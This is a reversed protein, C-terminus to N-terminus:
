ARALTPTRIRALAVVMWLAAAYVFYWLTEQGANVGPSFIVLAGTSSAHMLQTLLVSQTNSYVWAILVRVATMAATFAVFYPVFYAGHPTAVGLYDIVPLHWLGWLLGLLISARFASRTRAMKPFAYGMWGIEEFFGAPCGFLVGILFLKPAFAPSVAKAMGLLVSLVLVPPILLSAYWFASVRFRRMRSFLGGLAGPGDVVRTLLLGALSPGLLMAPFMLLGSMKPIPQHRVLYPAAIALAGLWSITFTLAFYALVPRRNM